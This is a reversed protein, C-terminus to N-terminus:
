SPAAQLSGLLAVACLRPVLGWRWMRALLLAVLPVAAVYWYILVKNNDWLRPALRFLNPLIQCLLFPLFFRRLGFAQRSWSTDKRM